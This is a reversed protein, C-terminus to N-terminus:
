TGPSANKRTLCGPAPLCRVRWSPTKRKPAVCQEARVSSSPIQAQVVARTRSGSRRTRPASTVTRACWRGRSQGMRRRSSGTRDVRRPWAPSRRTADTTFASTISGQPREYRDGRRASRRCRWEIKFPAAM